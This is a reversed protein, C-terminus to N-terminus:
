LLKRLSLMDNRKRMIGGALGRQLKDIGALTFRLDYLVRTVVGLMM